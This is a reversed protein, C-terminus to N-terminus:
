GRWPIWRRPPKADWDTLTYVVGLATLVGAFFPPSQKFAGTAVVAAGLAPVAYKESKGHLKFPIVRKAAYPQDTLANLGGQTAAFALPIARAPGMLGLALPGVVNVAAFGYDILSHGKVKIPQPPM